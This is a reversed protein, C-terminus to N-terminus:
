HHGRDRKRRVDDPRRKVFAPAGAADLQRRERRARGHGAARDIAELLAPEWGAAALAATGHLGAEALVGLQVRHEIGEAWAARVAQRVPVRAALEDTSGEEGQDRAAALAAGTRAVDDLLAAAREADPQQPAVRGDPEVGRRLQEMRTPLPEWGPEGALIVNAEEVAPRWARALGRPRLATGPPVAQGGHHNPRLSVWLATATGSIHTLLEHRERLWRRLAARALGTLTLLEPYAADARTGQRRRILRLDELTPSLDEITAACLEGARAATDTVVTGIALMRVRDPTAGPRDALEALSHRLAARPQPAVPSTASPHLQRPLQAFQEAGLAQVLLALGAIRVQETRDSGRSPDAAARVRLAGRRALALYAAVPAERFLTQATANDGLPHEAHDLARGYEGAVWRVQRARSEGVWEWSTTEQAAAALLAKGTLDTM